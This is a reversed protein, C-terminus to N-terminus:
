LNQEVPNTVILENTKSDEEKGGVDDDYAFCGLDCDFVSKVSTTHAEAENQGYFPRFVFADYM